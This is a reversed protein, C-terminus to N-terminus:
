YFATKFGHSTEGTGVGHQQSLTWVENDPHIRLLKGGLKPSHGSKITRKVNLVVEESGDSRTM